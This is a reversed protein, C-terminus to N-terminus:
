PVADPVAGGVIYQDIDVFGNLQALLRIWEPGIAIGHGQFEGAAMYHGIRLVAYLPLDEVAPIASALARAAREYLEDLHSAMPAGPASASRLTWTSEDAETKQGLFAKEDGVSQVPEDAAGFLSALDPGSLEESAVILRVEISPARM